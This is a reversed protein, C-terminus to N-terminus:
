MWGVAEEAEKLIEIVWEKTTTDRDNFIVAANPKKYDFKDGLIIRIHDHIKARIELDVSGEPTRFFAVEIAGTM